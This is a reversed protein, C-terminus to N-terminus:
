LCPDMLNRVNSRLRGSLKRWDHIELLRELSSKLLQPDLVTDFGFSFWQVHDAFCLDNRTLPYVFNDSDSSQHQATVLGFKQLLASKAM